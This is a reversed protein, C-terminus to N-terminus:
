IRGPWLCSWRPAPEVLQGRPPPAPSAVSIADVLCFSQNIQFSNSDQQSFVVLDDSFTKPRQQLVFAVNFHDTFRFGAALGHLERPFKTGGHDHHVDRHRQEIAQFGGTLNAFVKRVGLHENEGRVIIVRVDLLHSLYAGRSKQEFLGGRMNQGRRNPFHMFSFRKEAGGDGLAEGTAILLRRAAPSLELLSDVPQTWALHLHELQNGFALGVFLDRRFQTDAEFRDVLVPLMEHRFQVDVIDRTEGAVGDTRSDDLATDLQSDNLQFDGMPSIGLLGSARKGPLDSFVYM